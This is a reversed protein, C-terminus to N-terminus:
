AKHFKCSLPVKYMLGFILTYSPMTKPFVDFPSSIATFGVFPFCMVFTRDEADSSAISRTGGTSSVMSVPRSTIDSSSYRSTVGSFTRKLFFIKFVLDDHYEKLLPM